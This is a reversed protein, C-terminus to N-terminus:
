TVQTWRTARCISVPLKFPRRSPQGSDGIIAHPRVTIDAQGLAIGGFLMPCSLLRDAYGGRVRLTGIDASRLRRTSAYTSTTQSCHLDSRCLIAGWQHRDRVRRVNGHIYNAEVGLVVDEWQWNYGVFAGFGTGHSSAKGGGVPWNSVQGGAEISTNALLAAAVTRTSGTFNM